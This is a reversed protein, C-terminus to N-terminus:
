LAIATSGLPREGQSPLSFVTDLDSDCTASCFVMLFSLFFDVETCLWRRTYGVCRWLWWFSLSTPNHLSWELPDGSGFHPHTACQGNWRTVLVVTLNPQATVMEAPWWFSHSTPNHLSWKLPDGSRIHPQTTCHGTWRTVLLFTLNPQATVMEAPWWIWLSTPNHLSWKLPDGSGFHTQTTCQGNWRILLDLTLNLQATVLGAPWWFSLSTPNHISWELPDGSCFHLQRKRMVVGNRVKFQPEEDRRNNMLWKKEGKAWGLFDTIPYNTQKWQQVRFMKPFRLLM